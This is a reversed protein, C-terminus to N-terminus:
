RPGILGIVNGGPWRFLAFPLVVLFVMTYVDPDHGIALSVITSAGFAIALMLLPRTRRWLLTPILALM